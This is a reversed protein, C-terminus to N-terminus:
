PGFWMMMWRIYWSSVSGLSVMICLWWRGNCFIIFCICIYWPMLFRLLKIKFNLYFSVSFTSNNVTLKLLCLSLNIGLVFSVFDAGDAVMLCSTWWVYCYVVCSRWWWDVPRKSSFPSDSVDRVNRQRRKPYFFLFFFFVFLVSYRALWCEKM